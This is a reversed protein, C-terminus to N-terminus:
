PPPPHPCAAGTAVGRYLVVQSGFPLPTTGPPAGLPDQDVVKDVYALYAPPPQCDEVRWTFGLLTLAAKSDELTDSPALLSWARVDPVTVMARGIRVQVTSGPQVLNGTIAYPAPSQEVVKGDCLDGVPLEDDTGIEQYVLGAGEVAARAAAPDLCAGQFGAVDPVQAGQAGLRVTVTDGPDLETGVPPSVEAVRGVDPDGSALLVETGEAYVLGAGEITARAAAPTDGIVDPVAITAAGTGVRLTVSSGFDVTRGGLPDQEVVKGDNEDGFELDVPDGFIVVFGLEELAARADEPAQGTVDPVVTPIAGQSIVVTVVGDAPLTAGAAPDTEIVFGELVEASPEREVRIQDAGFGAEALKLLADRESHRAVDPVVLADVGASVVLNVATGAPVVRGAEPDQASVTGQPIVESPEYTVTATLGAQRLLDQARTETEGVLSPVTADGAGTSVLLRVTSGEDVEIGAAPDTGAVLGAAIDAAPVQQDEGVEFGLRELEAAAAQRTQGRLDPITVSGASGGPLLLRLLLILGLGFLAVAALIGIVLTSRDARGPEGYAPDRYTEHSASPPLPPGGVPAMLRTPAESPPMTAPVQGSLFRGLDVALAGATQYRRRPDKELCRMVIADLAEPINPNLDSPPPAYERVHQYAVSVPSEGVFPPVGTLLEYMVVGLAYVDSRGDASLGQAQEPSFYTATGIVAGTRTLQDSDDWARAIGFDTVKVSGDPTLLVNAPKVDRHVLGREHAAGLAASVATAIEAVRRPALAGEARLVERLNRGQVLEMVIFYVGQDRGWDYIDVVNVHNLNAASQAERRFRAVFAENAAYEPHLIKVAVRRDLLRDHGVWVDAMGGRALHSILAYRGSLVRQGDV